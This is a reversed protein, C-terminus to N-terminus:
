SVRKRLAVYGARAYAYPWAWANREVVDAARLDDATTDLGSRLYAAAWFILLIGLFYIGALIVLIVM